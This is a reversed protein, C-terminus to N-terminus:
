QCLQWFRCNLAEDGLRDPRLPQITPEPSETVGAAENARTGSVGAAGDSCRGPAADSILVRSDMVYNFLAELDTLETWTTAETAGAHTTEADTRGRRLKATEEGREGRLEAQRSGDLWRVCPGSPDPAAPVDPTPM